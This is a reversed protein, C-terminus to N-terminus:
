HSYETRIARALGQRTGYDGPAQEEQASSEGEDVVVQFGHDLVVQVVGSDDPDPVQLSDSDEAANTDNASSDSVVTVEPSELSPPRCPHGTTHRLIVSTCSPGFQRLCEHQHEQQEEMALRMSMVPIATAGSKTLRGV